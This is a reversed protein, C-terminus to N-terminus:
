NFLNAFFFATIAAKKFKLLGDVNFYRKLGDKTIEATTGDKSM